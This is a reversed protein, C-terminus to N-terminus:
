NDRFQHLFDPHPCFFTIEKFLDCSQFGTKRINELSNSNGHNLYTTSNNSIKKNLIPDFQSEPFIKNIIKEWFFIHVYMAKYLWAGLTLIKVAESLISIRM